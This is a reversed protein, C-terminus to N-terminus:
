EGKAYLGELWVSGTTPATNYKVYIQTGIGVLLNDNLNSPAANTCVDYLVFSGAPVILNDTTGDFSILLDGDTTNTFRFMRWLHTTPGGLTTYSGTIAGSAKTRIADVRLVAM